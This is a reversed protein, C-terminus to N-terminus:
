LLPKTRRFTSIFDCYYTRTIEDAICLLPIVSSEQRFKYANTEGHLTTIVLRTALNNRCLTEMCEELEDAPIDTKSSIVATTVPTNLRSYLYFIIRLMREDAFVAFVERLAEINRLYSKIGDRPETMLFFHRFDDSIRVTAMGSDQMIKTYYDKLDADGSPPGSFFDLYKDILSIDELLGINIAWCLHFAYRYAADNPMHNLRRALKVAEDHDARGFLADISVGLVDSLKPLLEIDPTGGNEWKSVAQTSGGLLRGLQEQTYGKEGRYKRIQKGISRM